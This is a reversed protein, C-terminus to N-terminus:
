RLQDYGVNLHAYEEIKGLEFHWWEMEIGKFGAELMANRLMDRYYRQRLTGGSYSSYQRFSPEDFASPMELEEGTALDILGVDVAMGTNHKSGKKDPNELMDKQKAPLAATALKSVHWPRYADWLVLGYGNAALSQQVKTLAVAVEKSVYLKDNDYIAHKFLNNDKGYISNIKLDPVIDANVLEANLGVKLKIPIVATKADNAMQKWEEDTRLPISFFNEKEGETYGLFSRTYIHGGVKCTICYGDQDRDFRVSSESGGMPGAENILYSDFHQKIMPYRNAKAFSRDESDYRYLLELGNEGQRILINEGNGYYFGLMYLVEKEPNKPAATEGLSIGITTQVCLLLGATIGILIREYIKM